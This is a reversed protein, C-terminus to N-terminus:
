TSHKHTHTRKHTSCPRHRYTGNMAIAFMVCYPNINGQPSVHCGLFFVYMPQHSWQCNNDCVCVFWCMRITQNVNAKGNDDNDNKKELKGCSPIVM